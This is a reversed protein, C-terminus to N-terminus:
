KEPDVPFATKEFYVSGSAGLAPVKAISRAALPCVQLTPARSDCRAALVAGTGAM